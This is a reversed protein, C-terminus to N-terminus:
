RCCPRLTLKRQLGFVWQWSPSQIGTSFGLPRTGSVEPYALRAFEIWADRLKLWARETERIGSSKITQYQWASEDSAQIQKYVEKLKSDAAQQDAGSAAPIDGKAFRKLNILFQDRLRGQERL